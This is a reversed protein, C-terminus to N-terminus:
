LKNPIAIFSNLLDICREPCTSDKLISSTVRMLDLGPITCYSPSGAFIPLSSLILIIGLDNLSQAVGKRDDLQKALVLAKNGYVLSSDSNVFRYVWCLENMTSVLEAGQTKAMNQKLSDIITNNALGSSEFLLLIVLTPLICATTLLVNKRNTFSCIM